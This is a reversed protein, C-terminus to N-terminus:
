QESFGVFANIAGKAQAAAQLKHDVLQQLILERVQRQLSASVCVCVCVCVCVVCM